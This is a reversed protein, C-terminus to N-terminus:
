CRTSLISVLSAASLAPTIHQGLEHSCMSMRYLEDDDTEIIRRMQQQLSQSNGTSFRYGSFGDILFTAAAGCCDSCLIPLGATAFEHIVVGWPEQRSPLLFCGSAAIEDKFKEPQMFERVVIGEQERLYPALSGNGILHLKWDGQEGDLDRWTRILLDLGKIKEFRGVFLFRHPYHKKKEQLTQEYAENFLALDASYLNFIIKNKRFGMKSAYEFQYPGSVWAHSFFCKLASRFPVALLQVPTGLWQDDFGIVIPIRRKRLLRAVRLYGKDMWGSVVVLDPNIKLALEKLADVSLASRAYFTADNGKLAFPTLKKKDWHVVHLDADYREKLERITALTYGMVEAYLYLIKM